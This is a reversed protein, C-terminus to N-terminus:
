ENFKGLIYDIYSFVKEGYSPSAGVFFVEKLVRNAIPYNRFDDLHEYGDHLLLNGAFYNRTQILKKELYAVLKEKQSIDKCIIGTGFWIPAAKKLKTPTKLGKIKELFSNSIKKQSINKRLYIEELKKLQIKGIAGQIDLPKLNYGINSFVYRHDIPRDYNKLWKAFRNKCAGNPLLGESGYCHCARGWNVLSRAINNIKQNSTVIMGGEGTSLTHAAYFSHSSAICYKNLFKGDWKSGLSDCDDLILKLDYEKCIEILKDMDPPNGLVPSLFIAKTRHNIKSPLLDLNFNLTDFEIDIFTPILNNQLITSVTTPFGVVSVIIESQDEWNYYKKLSALMILNASSGSNVMVGYKEEIANAYLAEFERVNKGASIWKGTLLTETAAIIEESNWYPGSYYVPSKGPIFNASQNHVCAPINIDNSLENIFNEIKKEIQMSAKDSENQPQFDHL